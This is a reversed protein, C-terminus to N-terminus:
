ACSELAKLRRAEGEAYQLLHSGLGLGRAEPRAAICNIFWTDPVREELQQIPRILAEIEPNQQVTNPGPIQPITITANETIEVTRMHGDGVDVTMINETRKIIEGALVYDSLNLPM